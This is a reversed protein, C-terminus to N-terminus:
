KEFVSKELAYVLKELFYIPYPYLAVLAQAANQTGEILISSEPLDGPEIKYILRLSEFDSSVPRCSPLSGTCNAAILQAVTLVSAHVAEESNNMRNVPM